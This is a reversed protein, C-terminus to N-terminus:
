ADEMAQIEKVLDQTISTIARSIPHRPKKMLIPVGENLSSLALEDDAPIKGFIKIKLINEIEERQMDSKRGTQNLIFLIKDKPYSLSAAIELFQKVDRLAALDPGLVLLIKDSSDLYTVTNDNLHNGSDIIINPFVQQLGQIVKFLDEPRIGQAGAIANPSPLVYIGSKHRVVVQKILQEDLMGAHAILDTISNGTLLNLYLTVHGFLHKGDVLLVDEKVKKYLSIALNTAITTSGAGGKPSFISLTTTPKNKM